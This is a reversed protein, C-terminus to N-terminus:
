ALDRAADGAPKAKGPSADRAPPDKLKRITKASRRREARWLKLLPPPIDAWAHHRRRRKVDFGQAYAWQFEAFWEAEIAAREEPDLVDARWLTSRETDHDVPEGQWVFEHWAAPRRASTNWDCMIEGQHQQWAQKLEEYSRFLSGIGSSPGVILELIVACRAPAGGGFVETMEFQRQHAQAGESSRPAEKIWGLGVAARRASIRRAEVAEVLDDRGAEKLRQLLYRRSSGRWKQTPRDDPQPDDSMGVSSAPDGFQAVEPRFYSRLSPRSQDAYYISRM